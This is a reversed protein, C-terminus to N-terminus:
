LIMVEWFKDDSACTLNKQNWLFTLNREWSIRTEINEVM